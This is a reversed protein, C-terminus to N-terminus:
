SLIMEFLTMRSGVHQQDPKRWHQPKQYFNADDFKFIEQAHGRHQLNRKKGSSSTLKERAKTLQSYLCYRKAEIPDGLHTLSDSDM